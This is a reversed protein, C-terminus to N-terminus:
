YFQNFFDRYRDYLDDDNQAQKEASEDENAAEKLTVDLDIIEGNRYVSIKVTEGAKHQNKISNFEEISEILKGEIGIIIDNVKIGAEEAASDANVVKVRFGKPINYYKSYIDSINEGSVGLTPRGTVRGNKILDEIIPIAEDIPIAFGIGEGYSKTVAASAIGIVQGYANILPGGSNGSNISADTQMYNMTRDEITITRNLSSIIGATVSNALEMSLPNGIVIAVEGVKVDSSKGFEAKTLGTKNIKLVAIDSQNDTGIIKADFTLEEDTTDSSDAYSSPLKVSVSRANEVVHANTLIYGDESMIIGTGMFVGNTAVCQIGVVSPTNKEVIEPISMADAPSALQVISPMDKKSVEAQSSEATSDDSSDTAVSAKVSASGSSNKGDSSVSGDGKILNYGVISTAGIAAVTLVGVFGALIKKGKGKKKKEPKYVVENDTGYDRYSGYYGYGQQQSGPQYDSHMQGNYSNYGNNGFNDM